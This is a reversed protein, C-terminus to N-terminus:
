FIRKWWPKIPHGHSLEFVASKVIKKTISRSRKSFASLLARDCTINIMRPYGLTHQYISKMSKTEFDVKNEGGAKKLRHQIYKNTDKHNLPNLTHWVHIRQSLQRMSPRRLTTELEPQGVLVIQLLKQNDTELNSLLRIMELAEESLNQAEDILVVANHGQRNKDLLFTNLAELQGEISEGTIEMGFDRNIAKILGPVSVLPNLIVAVEDNPELRNLMTRCVTTKGTGIEGTLAIFGKREKIGYVISEIAEEHQRSFFFFHPDPTSSFPEKELNFYSLYV